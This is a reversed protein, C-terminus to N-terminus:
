SIVQIIFTSPFLHKEYKISQSIGNKLDKINKGSFSGSADIKVSNEFAAIHFSLINKNTASSSFGKKWQKVPEEEAKVEQKLWKSPNDLSLLKKREKCYDFATSDPLESAAATGECNEDNYSKSCAQVPILIPLKYSQNLNLNSYQDQHVKQSNDNAFCQQKDKFGVFEDNTVM